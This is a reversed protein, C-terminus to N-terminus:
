LADWAHSGESIVSVCACCNSSAGCVPACCASIVRESCPMAAKAMAYGPGTGFTTSSHIPCSGWCKSGVSCMRASNAVAPASLLRAMSISLEVATKFGNISDATSDSVAMISCSDVMQAVSTEGCAYRVTSYEQWVV